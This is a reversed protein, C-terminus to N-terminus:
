IRRACHVCFRDLFSGVAFPSTSYYISLFRCLVEIISGKPPEFRCNRGAKFVVVALGKRSASYLKKLRRGIPLISFLVEM